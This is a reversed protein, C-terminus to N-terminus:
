PVHGSISASTLRNVGCFVLTSISWGSSDRSMAEFYRSQVTAANSNVCFQGTDPSYHSGGFPGIQHSPRGTTTVVM